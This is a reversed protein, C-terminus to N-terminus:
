GARLRSPTLLTPDVRRVLERCTRQAETLVRHKGSLVSIGIAHCTEFSVHQDARSNSADPFCSPIRAFPGALVRPRARGSFRM